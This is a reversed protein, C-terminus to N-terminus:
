PKVERLHEETYFFGNVDFQVREGDECVEGAANFRQTNTVPFPTVGDGFPPLIVMMSDDAM